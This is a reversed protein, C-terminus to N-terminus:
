MHRASFAGLRALATGRSASRALASPQPCSSNRAAQKSRSTAAGRTTSFKPPGTLAVVDAPQSPVQRVTTPAVLEPWYRQVPDDPGLPGPDVLLSVCAAAFPKRLSYVQM